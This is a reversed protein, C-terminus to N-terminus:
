KGRGLNELLLDIKTIGVYEAMLQKRSNYCFISPVSRIQYYSAVNMDADLLFHVFSKDKIGLEEVFGIMEEKPQVTTFILNYDKFEDIRESIKGLEEQCLHCTSSFYIFLTPKGQALQHISNVKGSIDNLTFDPLDKPASLAPLTEVEANQSSYALYATCGLLLTFLVILNVKKM